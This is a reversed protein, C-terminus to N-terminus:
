SGATCRGASYGSALTGNVNWRSTKLQLTTRITHALGRINNCALRASSAGLFEGCTSFSRSQFRGIMDRRVAVYTPFVDNQNIMLIRSEGFM